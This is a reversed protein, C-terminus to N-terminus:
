WGSVRLALSAKRSAARPPAYVRNIYYFHDTLNTVAVATQWDQSMSKWTIRANALARGGVHSLPNNTIDTFFSAQYNADVRPTLSGLTGITLVYQIGINAQRDPTYPEKTSLSVNPIVLAARGPSM